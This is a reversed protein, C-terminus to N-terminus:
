KILESWDLLISGNELVICPIGISGQRRVQAFSPDTDRLSLFIKLASLDESFDHYAYSIGAADLDKRCQVCDKCLMSGYIDM